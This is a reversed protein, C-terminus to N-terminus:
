RGARIPITVARNVPNRSTQPPPPNCAQSSATSDYLSGADQGSPAARWAAFNVTNGLSFTDWSWPGCYTNVSFVNAQQYTINNEVYSGAYPTGPIGPDSFLGSFGCLNGTTCAPGIGAPTFSMMNGTVQVNQTRWRCDNIYPTTNLLVSFNQGSSTGGRGTTRRGPPAPASVQRSPPRPTPHLSCNQQTAVPSAIPCEPQGPIANCYRNADEWLIIGGWNDFMQNGTILFQSGYLGPVRSDAGSESIYIASYPFGGIAGSGWANDVFINGSILGNYSIEYILGDAFEDAVYNGTITMATNNTDWWPGASYDNHVYNDAFLGGDVLFYKGAGSCGCGVFQGAGTCGSPPTIPFNPVVEWNCTDNYSIENNVITINSAGSTVPSTDITTYTGFGTQGNQTICSYQMLNDTGLYVAVGPVMDQLTDYQITWGPAADTNVAGEAGPTHFDQITLYEVTVGTSTGGVAFLNYNEGDLVAGPAGELIDNNGPNIALYIGFTGTLLTHTGPAFWYTTNAPLPNNFMASNDGAPVTVAGGPPSSPGNNLVASGCIEESPPVTPPQLGMAPQVHVFLLALLSLAAGVRVASKVADLTRHHRAQQGLV